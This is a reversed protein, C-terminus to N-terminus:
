NKTKHSVAITDGVSVFETTFDSLTPLWERYAIIARIMPRIRRHLKKIETEDAVAIGHFDINDTLIYGDQNLFPAFKEFFYQNNRKTADIFILDYPGQAKVREFFTESKADDQVFTIAAKNEYANLFEQAKHYRVEDKEISLISAGTLKQFLITSYSIAGGIELIREIKKDLLFTELWQESEQEIIPVRNEKAYARMQKLLTDVSM